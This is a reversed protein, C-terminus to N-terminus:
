RSTLAADEVRILQAQAWRAVRRAWAAHSETEHAPAFVVSLYEEASIGCAPADQLRRMLWKRSRSIQGALLLCHDAANYAALSAAMRASLDDGAALQGAVDNLANEAIAKAKRALARSYTSGAILQQTDRFFAENSLPVAISVRYVFDQMADSFGCEEPEDDGLYPALLDTVADLPWIKLDVCVDAYRGMWNMWTLGSLDRGPWTEMTDDVPLAPRGAAFAYLDIDSLANGWGAATSGTWGVADTDALAPFHELIASYSLDPRRPVAPPATLVTVTPTFMAHTM